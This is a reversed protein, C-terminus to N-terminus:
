ASFQLIGRICYGTRQSPTICRLGWRKPSDDRGGSFLHSGLDDKKYITSWSETSVVGRKANAPSMTLYPPTVRGKKAEVRKIGRMVLDLQPWAAGAFPDKMGYM